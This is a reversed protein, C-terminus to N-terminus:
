KIILMKRTQEKNNSKLRYFYVGSGVPKDFDDRGNWVISHKGAPMDGTLLKRVLQGKINYINLTMKGSDPLSFNITTEPNFPNPYNQSLAFEPKIPEEYEGAFEGLRLVTYQNQLPRIVQRIFKGSEKDKVEVVRIREPESREGRHIVFSVEQESDTINMTYAQIEM